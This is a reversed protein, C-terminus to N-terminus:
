EQKLEEAILTILIGIKERTPGDVHECILEDINESFYIVREATEERHKLLEDKELQLIQVVSKSSIDNKISKAENIAQDFYELAKVLHIDNNAKSDQEQAQTFAFFLCLQLSFVKTRM